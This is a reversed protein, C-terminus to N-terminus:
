KVLSPTTTKKAKFEKLLEDKIKEDIVGRTIIKEASNGIKVCM